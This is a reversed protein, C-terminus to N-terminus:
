CWSEEGPAQSEDEDSPVEGYMDALKRFRPGFSSLYNFKLDGEDTCSALSSLSGTTNGDGEYAYHRVDDFPNTDPDRDIVHKKDDLFGSIDGPMMADTMTPALTQLQDKEPPDYMKRLVQLDYGADGEGGGEDEYNIINERIDDFEKEPWGESRRKHVVVALLLILLIAVCVLIAVLFNTDIGFSVAKAMSTQCLSDINKSDSPQGLNYTEDNFTLNSICGVFGANTPVYKWGYLHGLRELNVNAGGLQLPGNVNLFENLGTPAALNMCSSMKCQDVFMEISTKVFSIEILHSQGDDVKVHKHEIRTTGSGYNILLVPYGKILELSMFDQVNLLENHVLPGLYFILGDSIGPTIRLSLFSEECSPVTPYLAWGDGHFGVSTIECRPGTLGEPCECRDSFPTGGNFCELIQVNKCSCDVDVTASVGVFSTLNTYVSLPVNSKVLKNRCSGTKCKLKEIICEDISIMYIQMNLLSELENQNNSALSNLKEAAYYPSGHASFRVDLTRDHTASNHSYVTFVDVNDLSTNFILSLKQRLVDKKSLGGLSPTIFDEATTNIFRISGSKDVAEEPIEKVTVNVSAEVWHFPILPENVETVNFILEYTGNPTGERMTIMGTERQVDFYPSKEAYSPLWSFQKDPLDWDDPDTVYVRGIETDPAEGKYNYVFIDSHGPGMPNDNRDGIVVRLISVGTMRPLGSDSIAIPILYEKIEERDFTVLTMLQEGSIHFKTRIDQSASENLSFKFPAGNEETDYDKATLTVIAGPPQNEYWVVPQANTLYPANDNIDTLNIIVETTSRLATPSGQQDMATILVQWRNFGNPPDRDLPEILQLCGENDIKLFKQQDQKVLFYVIKQPANRDAIDPDYAEVNAICGEVLSEEVITTTINQVFVPPNDNVNDINIKVMAFDDHLGDSAKITLSYQTINEYDLKNNVRIKGTTNEIFFADYTNGTVISYTVQTATDIDNAVVEAVLENINADEAIAEAVYTDQTFKPQNDNKDAIEIRFSKQGSNHRGPVIASPSNDTAIVKVNYFDKEERDFSVLTTINGTQPDIKFYKDNDGLTYTVQNHASTGDADIARVQMVPTDIPENELVSGSRSEVFVPINDNVDEIFINIKTEVALEFKNQVRVTLIYDTIREYDLQGGLKIYATDGDSELAFTRMKNTQETKGVGLDFLLEKEPINSVAQITAIRFDYDSFNEKLYIIDLPVNSFSPSKKNPEVVRIDLIISNYLPTEGMDNVVARLEFKFNAPKDITKNLYIVGTSEDIRFYTNNSYSPDLSYHVISNNGDDIDTASIRMVEKGVPLDQPVSEMYSVKDFVPSNDNIDEITVKITCVDDLQPLGNDSVRVTIYTEKERAPEDRDFVHSTTIFGTDADIKFKPKEGSAIVFQYRLKGGRDPPDKDEAKVTFIHVNPQTHEPVSPHYHSCNTFVPKHNDKVALNNKLTDRVDVSKPHSGSYSTHFSESHRSHRLKTTRLSEWPLDEKSALSLPACTLLVALLFLPSRSRSCGRGRSRSRPLADCRWWWRSSVSM